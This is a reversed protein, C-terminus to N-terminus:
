AVEREHEVGVLLWDLSVDLVDAMTIAAVVTPTSHGCEIRSLGDRTIGAQQAFGSASVGLSTRRKRVRRGIDVRIREIQDQTM